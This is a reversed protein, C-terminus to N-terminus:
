YATTENQELPFAINTSLLQGVYTCTSLFLVRWYIYPFAVGGALQKPFPTCGSQPQGKPSTDYVRRFINLWIARFVRNM